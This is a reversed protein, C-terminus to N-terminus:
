NGGLLLVAEEETIGLRSLLAARAEAKTAAEAEAAVKEELALEHATFEADNMERIITEQTAVNFNTVTPRTM